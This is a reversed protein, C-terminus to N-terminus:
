DIPIAWWAVSAACEPLIALDVLHLWDLVVCQLQFGPIRCWANNRFGGEFFEANTKLTKRHASAPGFSSYTLPGTDKSAQCYACVSHSVWSQQLKLARQVFKEDGKWFTLIGRYKGAIAGANGRLFGM